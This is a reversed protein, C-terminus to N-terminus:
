GPGWPLQIRLRRVSMDESAVNAHMPLHVDLHLVYKPPFPLPPGECPIHNMHPPAGNVFPAENDLEHPNHDLLHRMVDQNEAEQWDMGYQALDVALIDEEEPEPIFQRIGRPSDQVMSFFFMERPSQSSQGQIQMSHSNWTAVWAEADRHILPLFLHHLLWIHVPDVPSLRYHVELDIFFNKWKQGFGRTVDYWLREIHTNHISRGYIYSGRHSGRNEDMWAAVNVNETGHDGRVRSPIGYQPIAKLFLDLVTQACNNTNVEMGTVLRTHGDIFCHIVLKYKILGHQGDHHWLSNAGAVKYVRRHISRDGFITPAGHVRLYSECIRERTVNMGAAHLCGDIMRRGFNPFRQLIDQMGGDLEDDSLNQPRVPPQNWDVTVTGDPHEQRQFVPQGPVGLGHDLIRCHVTQASCGFLPALGTPSPRIELASALVNENVVVRPCGRQGTKVRESILIPANDPPDASQLSASDLLQTMVATSRTLTTWEDPPFSAIEAAELFRLVERRQNGLQTADGIQTHLARTVARSLEHYSLQLNIVALPTCNEEM